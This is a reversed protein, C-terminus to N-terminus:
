LGDQVLRTLAEALQEPDGMRSVCGTGVVANPMSASTCSEPRQVWVSGGSNHMIRAGLMGDVGMGSFVVCGSRERYVRGVDALVQDIAPTYPGSWGRRGLGIEGGPKFSVERSVPVISVQGHRLRHGHDMVTPVFPSNALAKALMNEFHQDIHQAYVFAVPLDAPLARLFSAVAAPGGLSAALVWVREPPPADVVPAHDPLEGSLGERRIMGAVAMSQVKELLRDSWRGYDGPESEEPIADGFLVPAEARALLQDLGPCDDGSCSVVWADPSAQALEALNECGPELAVVVEYGAGQLVHKLRRTHDPVEAIVGIKAGM